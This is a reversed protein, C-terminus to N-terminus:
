RSALYNGTLGYGAWLRFRHTPHSPGRELMARGVRPIPRAESRQRQGSSGCCGWRNPSSTEVMAAWGQAAKARSRNRLSRLCAVAREHPSNLGTSRSDPSASGSAELVDIAQSPQLSIQPLPDLLVVDSREQVRELVVQSGDQSIDFDRIDDDLAALARKGRTM